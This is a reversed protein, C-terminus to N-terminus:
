PIYRFDYLSKEHSKHFIGENLAKPLDPYLYLGSAVARFVQSSTRVELGSTSETITPASDAAWLAIRVFYM